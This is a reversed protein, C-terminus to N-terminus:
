GTKILMLDQDSENRCRNLINGCKAAMTISKNGIKGSFYVM